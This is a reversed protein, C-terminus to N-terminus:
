WALTDAEGSLSGQPHHYSRVIGTRTDTVRIRYEVDTVSGYFVWFHGNLMRGDLIKVVVETNARDFFWFTGTQDSGPLAGGTGSAGTSKITWGVEVQFRGLLCLNTPGAQCTAGPTVKATITVGAYVQSARLAIKWNGGGPSPIGVSQVTSNGNFSAADFAKATPLYQRRVYLFLAGTGGSTSVQLSASGPPLDISFFIFDGTQGDELGSLSQGDELTTAEAAFDAALNVGSFDAAPFVEVYWAGAQPNQVVISQATGANGSFFDFSTRTPIAGFKVLLYATGSGGSTALSLSTARAPVNIVFIPGNACVAQGSLESQPDGPELDQAEQPPCGGSDARAAIALLGCVLALGLCRCRSGRLTPFHRLTTPM